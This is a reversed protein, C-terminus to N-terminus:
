RPALSPFPGFPLNRAVWYVGVVTGLLAVAWRPVRTLGPLAPGGLAPSAWALWLWALLPLSVVMLVNERLGSVLHGHLLLRLGRTTGCGPCWWGTVAHFPCPPLWVTGAPLAVVALAAAAGGAVLLPKRGSPHEAREMTATTVM